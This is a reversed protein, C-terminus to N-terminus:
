LELDADAALPDEHKVIEDGVALEGRARGQGLHQGECGLHELELDGGVPGIAEADVPHCALQMRSGARRQGRRWPLLVGPRLARQLAHLHGHSHGSSQWRKVARTNSFTVM